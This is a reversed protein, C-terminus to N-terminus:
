SYLTMTSVYKGYGNQALYQARFIGKEEDSPSQSISRILEWTFTPSPCHDAWSSVHFLALFGLAISM